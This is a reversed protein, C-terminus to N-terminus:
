DQGGIRTIVTSYKLRPTTPSLIAKTLNKSTSPRIPCNNGTSLVHGVEEYGEEASFEQSVLKLFKNFKSAKTNINLKKDVSLVSSTSSCSTTDEESM